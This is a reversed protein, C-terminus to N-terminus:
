PAIGLLALQAKIESPTDINKMRCLANGVMQYWQKGMLLYSGDPIRDLDDITTENGLYQAGYFAHIKLSM